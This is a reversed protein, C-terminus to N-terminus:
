IFILLELTGGDKKLWLILFFSAMNFVLISMEVGRGEQKLTHAIADKRSMEDAM